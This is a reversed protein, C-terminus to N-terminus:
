ARLILLRATRSMSAAQYLRFLGLYARSTPEKLKIAVRFLTEAKATDGMYYAFEGRAAIVVPSNPFEKEDSLAADSASDVQGLYVLSSLLAAHAVENHPADAGAAQLLPLARGYDGSKYAAIADSLDEGVAHSVLFFVLLVASAALARM